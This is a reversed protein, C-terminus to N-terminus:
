RRDSLKEAFRGPESSAQLARRARHGVSQGPKVGTVSYSESAMQLRLGLHRIM